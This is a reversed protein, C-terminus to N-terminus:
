GFCCSSWMIRKVWNVPYSPKNISIGGPLLSMRSHKHQHSFAIASMQLYSQLGVSIIPCLPFVWTKNRQCLRGRHHMILVLPQEGMATTDHPKKLTLWICYTTWELRIVARWNLLGALFSSLKRIVAKYAFILGITLDELRSFQGVGIRIYPVTTHTRYRNGTILGIARHYLTEGPFSNTSTSLAESPPPRAATCDTGRASWTNLKFQGQRYCYQYSM